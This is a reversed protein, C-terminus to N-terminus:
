RGLTLTLRGEPGELVVSHEFIAAVVFPGFQDRVQYTRSQSQYEIIALQKSRGAVIGTLVPKVAKGSKPVAANQHPTNVASGAPIAPKQYAKPVAFPDKIVAEQQYGRPMVTRPPAPSSRNPVSSVEGSKQEEAAILFNVAALVFVAAAAIALIRQRPQLRVLFGRMDTNM